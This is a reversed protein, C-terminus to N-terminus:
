PSQMDELEARDRLDDMEDALSEPFDEGVRPLLASLTSAGFADATWVHLTAAVREMDDLERQRQHERARERPRTLQPILRTGSHRAGTSIDEAVPPPARM